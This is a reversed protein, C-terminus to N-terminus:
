ASEILALSTSSARTSRFLWVLELAQAVPRQREEAHLVVGFGRRPRM